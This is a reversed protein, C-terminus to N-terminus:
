RDLSMNSNNLISQEDQQPSTQSLAHSVQLKDRYPIHVNSELLNRLQDNIKELHNIRFLM